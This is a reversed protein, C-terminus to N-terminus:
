FIAAVQLKIQSGLAYRIAYLAMHRFLRSTEPSTNYILRAEDYILVAASDSVRKRVRRHFIIFRRFYLCM